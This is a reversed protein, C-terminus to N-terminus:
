NRAPLSAASRLSQGDAAGTCGTTAISQMTDHDYAFRDVEILEGGSLQVEIVERADIGLGEDLDGEVRVLSVGSETVHCGWQKYTTDSGQLQTVTGASMWECPGTRVWVTHSILANRDDGHLIESPALVELSGDRDLDVQLSTGEPGDDGSCSPRDLRDTSSPMDGGDAAPICTYQASSGNRVGRPMAALLGASEPAELWRSSVLQWVSGVATRLNLESSDTELSRRGDLAAHAYGGTWDVLEVNGEANLRCGYSDFSLISADTVTLTQEWTCDGAAVYFATEFFRGGETSFNPQIMEDVGDGDIDSIHAGGFEPCAGALQDSGVADVSSVAQRMAYLTDDYPVPFQEVGTYREVASIVMTEQGLDWLFVRRRTSGVLPDEFQGEFIIAPKGVYWWDDTSGTIAWRTDAQHDQWLNAIPTDTVAIEVPARCSDPACSFDDGAGRPAIATCDPSAYSLPYYSVVFNRVRCRQGGAGAGYPSLPWEIPEGVQGEADPNRVPDPWIPTNDPDAPATTPEPAEDSQTTVQVEDASREFVLSGALLVLAVGAAAALLIGARRRHPVARIREDSRAAFDPESIPRQRMVTEVAPSREDLQAARAEFAAELRDDLTM